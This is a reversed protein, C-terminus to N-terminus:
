ENRDRLMQRALPVEIFTASAGQAAQELAERVKGEEGQVLHYQALYFFAAPDHDTEKLFTAEPLDGSFLDLALDLLWDRNSSENQTQELVHAADKGDMSLSLWQGVLAQSNANDFRGAKEFYAAATAYDQSRYAFWGALLDAHYRDNSDSATEVAMRSSEQASVANGLFLQCFSQAWYAYSYNPSLDNVTNFDVIASGCDDLNWSAYGRIVYGYYDDPWRDVYTTAHVLAERWNDSGSADRFKQDIEESTESTKPTESTEPTESFEPLQDALIEPAGAILARGQDSNLFLGGGIMLMGIVLGAYLWGSGGGRQVVDRKDAPWAKELKM